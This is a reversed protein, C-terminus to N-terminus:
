HQIVHTLAKMAKCSQFTNVHVAECGQLCDDCDHTVAKNIAECGYGDCDHTATVNLQKKTIFYLIYLETQPHLLLEEVNRSGPNEPRIDFQRALFRFNVMFDSQLM